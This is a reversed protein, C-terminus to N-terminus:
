PRYYRREQGGRPGVREVRRGLARLIRGIRNKVVPTWDKKTVGLYDLVEAVSVSEQDNVWNAVLDHWPDADFRKEQEQTALANLATSDMWWPENARFLSVAEAWLLDRDKKLGDIDIRGCKVPWFRRAGTEDRLYADSNTTGAIVSSRPQEIVHKGYPPRYKDTSRSIFAKTKASEARSLADLESMELIWASAVQMAADKGLEDSLEDSFWPESLTRLATSKGCGQPGELILVCDQKCGPVMVRAVAGILFRSGVAQTYLSEEAGLRIRLWADLRKIGDWTLSNLYDRVPHYLFDRSFAQISRGVTEPTALIGERQFWAAALVDDADTWQFPLERSTAWPPSAKAVTKLAFENFHLVGAWAPDNRLALLVNEVCGLAEGRKVILHERWNASDLSASKGGDIGLWDLAANVARKDILASLKPIGTAQGGEAIRRFSDEVSQAVRGVANPDHSPVATYVAIVFMKADDETWGARALVGSLALECDHRGGGAPPYHRSLLVAAATMKVARVLVDADVNSPDADHRSEFQIPEGSDKHTSGPLVTQRGVKGDNSLCRLELLTNKDVPDSFKLSPGPPDLHYIWHSFPKSQHGFVCSTPPAFTQWIKLAEPCDLDIDCAGYPEGLLLGINSPASSFHMALDEPKLRLEQWADIVPKKQRYPIPIVNYGKESWRRAAELPSIRGGEIIQFRGTNLEANIM